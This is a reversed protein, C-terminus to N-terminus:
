NEELMQFVPRYLWQRGQKERVALRLRYLEMLRNNWATLNVKEEPHADCLEGATKPHDASLIRLTRILTPELKKLVRACAVEEENWDLAELCPAEIAPLYLEFEARVDNGLGTVFPVVPLPVERWPDNSEDEGLDLAARRGCNFLWVYTARFYSGNLHEIGSYDLIVTEFAGFSAAPRLCLEDRLGRVHEQGLTAGTAQRTEPLIWHVM